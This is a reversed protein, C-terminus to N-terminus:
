LLRLLSFTGKTVLSPELCPVKEPLFLITIWRSRRYITTGSAISFVIDSFFIDSHLKQVFGLSQPLLLDHRAQSSSSRASRSLSPILLMMEDGKHSRADILFSSLEAPEDKTECSVICAAAM